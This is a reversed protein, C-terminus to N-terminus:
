SRLAGRLPEAPRTFRLRNRALCRVERQGEGRSLWAGCDRVAMGEACKSVDALADNPRSM